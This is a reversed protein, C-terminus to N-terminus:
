RKFIRFLTRIIVRIDSKLSASEMYAIQSAVKKPLLIERYVTEPDEAKELLESENFGILSAPDTMGPRVDLVRRMEETYLSVYEPIEPRPGVLSMDGRLVNWLQPFEDIKYKRIFRGVPTIRSDSTGMTIGPGESNVKMSRFKVLWFLKGKKGVRQQFYLINGSGDMAIALAVIGFIPMLAVIGILSLLLDSVRKM